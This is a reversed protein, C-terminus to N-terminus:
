HDCVNSGLELEGNVYHKVLIEPELVPAGVVVSIGNESFLMQARRGMGSAIITDAGQERLWKPLVGPAHPPPVAAEVDKIEGDEVNILAFQQSHGFHTCLKGNVTPIAIKM